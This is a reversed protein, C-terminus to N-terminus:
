LKISVKEGSRKLYKCFEASSMYSSMYKTAPHIRRTNYLKDFENVVKYAEAFSQFENISLCEEKLIEHYSEIHANMDPTKYPIREHEV